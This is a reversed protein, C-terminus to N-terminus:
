PQLVPRGLQLVHRAARRGQCYRGIASVTYAWGHKNVGSSYTVMARLMYNSNTYAVAGNFGPAYLDTTTNYNTSGGIDGFGYNSAGLGVTNTRNRFARSSMGLLSNFNFRGRILDNLRIGNIYM